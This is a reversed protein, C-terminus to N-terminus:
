APGRIIRLEAEAGGDGASAAGSTVTFGAETLGREIAQLSDLGSAQVLVVLADDTAGWTLRRFTATADMALLAAAVDALLPLATSGGPGTTVVSLRSLIPGVDPTLSVGPLVPSIAAQAAERAGAAVRGLAVVDVTLLALHTILGAALLSVALGFPRWTQAAGGPQTRPLGWALEMPDPPPVSQSLDAHALGEPLPAGYSTLAPRGAKGWVLSFADTPVGFGTGDSVRVICRDGDRWVAWGTEPRRILLYEPLVRSASLPCSDIVRRAVVFILQPTGPASTVPGPAVVTGDLNEAIRDEAAFALMAARYRARAPPLNVLHSVVQEAALLFPPETRAAALCQALRDQLVTSGSRAVGVAPHGDGDDPSIDGPAFVVARPVSVAPGFAGQNM